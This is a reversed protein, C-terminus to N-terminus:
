PQTPQPEVPQFVMAREFLTKPDAEALFAAIEASSGSLRVSRGLSDEQVKGTLRGDAIAQALTETSLFRLALKGDNGIDYGFISYPKDGAAAADETQLNLFRRGGTESVHASYHDTDGSGDAEHSVTAVGLRNGDSRFVHAYITADEVTAAWLGFLEPAAVADQPPTVPNISDPLCGALLLALGCAAVLRSLM